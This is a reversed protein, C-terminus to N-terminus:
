RRGGTIELELRRKEPFSPDNDLRAIELRGATIVANELEQNPERGWRQFRTAMVTSVGPVARAAAYVQSLYVPQGFTFNDPHFFGRTGDPLARSGLAELLAREVDAPVYGAAACVQLALDLPMPVPRDVEIDTGAMRFLDLWTRVDSEFRSEDEGAAAAIRDATVFATYWSGTWRLTAAARQVFPMRETVTAYDAETVAREQSRFAQPALLKVREVPEPDVGETAPLPNWVRRVKGELTAFLSAPPVVRSLAQAGVNGVRGNGIRYTARFVAGSVPALGLEDDGFRLHAHGDEDMEVVFDPEFRDSGLLDLRPKWSRGGGSLSTVAPIAESPDTAMAIAAPQRRAATAQTAPRDLPWPPAAFTLPSLRLAPRYPGDESVNSPVPDNPPKAPDSDVTRGHDALAVNGRAVSVGEFLVLGDHSRSSICLAFPLADERAWAVDLIATGTVQDHGPVTETLRIAWRHTPDADAAVGTLPGLIEEFLLLDGPALSVGPAAVLTATTAGAPLCCGDEGWTHFGIANHALRFTVATMTEFVTPREEGILRGLTEPDPDVVTPSGESESSLVPSGPPLTTGDASTDQMEFCVWARANCGEHMRYDLLRAHRRISPRKLATGLYAETAVADQFYSLHDGVYALVEVLAIEVDAPNREQWAPMTLAMRDLMVQRFSAYDKALYDNDPEPFIEPPCRDESGCDFDTECGAKFSFGIASLQPDFRDPPRDDLESRRLRLTYTSHDGMADGVQWGPRDLTVGLAEGSAAVDTAVIGTFRVGGDIAVNSPTLKPPPGPPVPNVTGPLGNLFHVELTTEDAAVVLYDIGNLTSSGRISARRRHTGCRYGAVM